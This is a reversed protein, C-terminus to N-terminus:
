TGVDEELCHCIIDVLTTHVPRYHVPVRATSRDGEEDDRPVVLQDSGM